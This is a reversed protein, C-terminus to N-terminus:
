LPGVARGAAAALSRATDHRAKASPVALGATHLGDRATVVDIRAQAVDGPTVGRRAQEVASVAQLYGDRGTAADAQATQLQDLRVDTPGFPEYGRATYLASVAGQTGADLRGDVRGPRLGMRALAVELQLVDPGRSGRHLDRHM